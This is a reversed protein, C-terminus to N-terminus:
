HHLFRGREPHLLYIPKAVSAFVAQFFQLNQRIHACIVCWIYPNAQFASPKSYRHGGHRSWGDRHFRVASDPRM